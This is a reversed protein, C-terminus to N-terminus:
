LLVIIWTCVQHFMRRNYATTMWCVFVDHKRTSSQIIWQEFIQQLDRQNM